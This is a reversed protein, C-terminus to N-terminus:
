SSAPKPTLPSLEAEVALLLAEAVPLGVFVAVIGPDAEAFADALETVRVAKSGSPDTGDEVFLDADPRCGVVAAPGEPV